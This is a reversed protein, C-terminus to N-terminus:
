EAAEPQPASVVESEVRAQPPKLDKLLSGLDIGSLMQVVGPVQAIV